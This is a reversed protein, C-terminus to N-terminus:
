RLPQAVLRQEDLRAFRDEAEALKHQEVAVVDVGLVDHRVLAHPRAGAGARARASIPTRRPGIGIALMLQGHTLQHPLLTTIPSTRPQGGESHARPALPKPSVRTNYLYVCTAVRGQAIGVTYMVVHVIHRIEGPPGHPHLWGERYPVWPLCTAHAVSLAPQM